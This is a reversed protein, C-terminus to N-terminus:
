KKSLASSKVWWEEFYIALRIQPNEPHPKLYSGYLHLTDNVIHINYYNAAKVIKGNADKHITILTTDDPLFYIGNNYPRSGKGTIYMKGDFQHKKDFTMTRNINKLAPNTKAETNVRNWTGYLQKEPKAAVLLVFILLFLISRTITTTM